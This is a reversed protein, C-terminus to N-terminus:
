RCTTGLFITIVDPEPKSNKVKPPTDDSAFFLELFMKNKTKYLEKPQKAFNEAM